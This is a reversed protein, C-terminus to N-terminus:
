ASAFWKRVRKTSPLRRQYKSWAVAPQKGVAPVVPWGRELYEFAFHLLDRM